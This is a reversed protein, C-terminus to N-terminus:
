RLEGAAGRVNWQRSSLFLGVARRASTTLPELGASVGEQIERLPQAAPELAQALERSDAVSAQPIDAPLLLRTENVTEDATRRTLAVVALGAEEVSRQFSPLSPKQPTLDASREIRSDSRSGFYVASCVVLLGAALASSVLLRRSGIARAREAQIQRCIQGSLSRPPQPSALLRVGELLRQAAAHWDRCDPCISLHTALTPQDLVAPEGDLYRQLLEQCSACDM